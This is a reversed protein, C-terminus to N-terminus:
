WKAAIDAARIFAFTDEGIKLQSSEELYSSYVVKDGVSVEIPIRTQQQSLRGEGVAVVEAQQMLRQQQKSVLLLGGASKDSAKLVRVFVTDALPQVDSPQLVQPQSVKALLEEGSLLVCDSGDYKLAEGSHKPYVVIDGEKVACAIRKGTEQHLEGPGTALVRGLVKEQRSETPLLLGGKTKVDAELKQLLVMGRLPQLPGSIFEGDLSHQSSSSSSSSAAAATAAACRGCVCCLSSLGLGALIAVEAAAAVVAGPM